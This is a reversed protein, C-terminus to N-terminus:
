NHLPFVAIAEYKPTKTLHTQYLVVENAQFSLPEPQLKTWVGLEEKQFHDEGKWKRALTIHPRFPRKELQFGARECTTFVKGRIAQLPPSEETDAWFVRPSDEHGFFGLANIKLSFAKTDLLVEKVHRLLAALKEPPVAGLFVLTIHLDQHHVWRRFPITEKMREIHKKLVLKTEEPLRLAFFFHPQQEM